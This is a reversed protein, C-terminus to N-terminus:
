QCLSKRANVSATNDLPLITPWPLIWPNFLLDRPIRGEPALSTGLVSAAKELVEGRQESPLQVVAEVAIAVRRSAAKTIEVSVEVPAQPKKLEEALGEFTKAQTLPEKLRLRVV